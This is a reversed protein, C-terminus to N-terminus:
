PGKRVEPGTGRRGDKLRERARRYYAAAKARSGCGDMSCWRRRKNRTTDYFFLVCRPNECRRVLSRDGRELLWAASEAIPVLLQLASEAVPVVRTVFGPGSRVLQPYSPRAALVRNIARIPRSGVDQGAAIREAMAHLEARLAIADRFVADADARGAWRERARRAAEPALVGAAELWALLDAFGTLLDVPEGRQILQTNVFDLWPLNGVFVFARGESGSITTM